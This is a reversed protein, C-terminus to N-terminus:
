QAERQGVHASWSNDREPWRPLKVWRKSIKPGSRRVPPTILPPPRPPAALGRMGGTEQLLAHALGALDLDDTRDDLEITVLHSADDPLEDLVLEDERIEIELQLVVVERDLVALCRAILHRDVGRVRDELMADAHLAGRDRRIFRPHLFESKRLHPLAGIARDAVDEATHDEPLRDDDAVDRPEDGAPRLRDDDTAMGEAILVPGGVHLDGTGPLEREGERRGVARFRHLHLDVLERRGADGHRHVVKVVRDAVEGPGTEAVTQRPTERDIERRFVRDQLGVVAAELINELLHEVGLELGVKHGLPQRVLVAEDVVHDGRGELPLPAVDPGALVVVAIDLAVDDGLTEARQPQHRAHQHCRIPLCDLGLRGVARDGPVVAMVLLPLRGGGVRDGRDEGPRAPQGVTAFEVARWRHGM